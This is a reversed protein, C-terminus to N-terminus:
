KVLGAMDENLNFTRYTINGHVDIIQLELRNKTPEPLNFEVTTEKQANLARYDYLVLSKGRQQRNWNKKNHEPDRGWQYGPPPTDTTPPILLMAQHLGDVDKLHFRLVKLESPNGSFPVIEIEAPEDFFPQGPNFFRNKDLWEASAESLQKRDRGYSMLYNADRFDHKLGFAHGLEHAVTEWEFGDDGSAPVMASGARAGWLDKKYDLGFPTTGGVGTVNERHNNIRESSIDVIILHVDKSRDFKANIEKRIKTSTEKLYYRDTYQGEMLYVKARGNDNKEFTFTKRGFGHHEMQDAYFRQVDKILQDLKETIDPQAARDSPLFYILRVVDQSVSAQPNMYQSTDWVRLIGDSWGSALANGDVSFDVANAWCRTPGEIFAIREGNELSWFEVDGIGGSVLIKGNPTFALDHVPATTITAHHHGSPLAYLEINGDGYAVALLLNEMDPLFALTRVRGAEHQLLNEMDPSFALTEVRGAEHKLAKIVRQREIDWIKVDGGIKSATALLKGDPSFVLKELTGSHSLAPGETVVTPTRADWLKVGLSDNAIWQGDPSCAIADASFGFASVSKKADIDWLRSGRAGSTTTIALFRGDPSFAFAYGGLIEMPESTDNLDWLKVTRAARGIVSSSAVLSKDVPSFAVANISSGHKATAILEPKHSPVAFKQRIANPIEVTRPTPRPHDINWRRLSLLVFIGILVAVVILSRSLINRREM